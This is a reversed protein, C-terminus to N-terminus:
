SFGLIHKFPRQTLVAPDYLHSHWGPNVGVDSPPKQTSILSHPKSETSHSFPRHILVSPEKLHTHLEPYWKVKSLLVQIPPTNRRPATKTFYYTNSTIQTNIYKKLYQRTSLYRIDSHFICWNLRYSENRTGELNKNLIQRFIKNLNTFVWTNFAFNLHSIKWLIM